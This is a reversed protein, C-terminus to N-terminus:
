YESFKTKDFLYQPVGLKGVHGNYIEKNAKPYIEIWPKIIIQETALEEKIFFLDDFVMILPVYGFKSTMKKYALPSAGYWARNDWMWNEDYNLVYSQDPKFRLNTEIQIVSPSYDKLIENLVHFDMGDIDICLFDLDKPVNFEKFMPVINDKTIFRKHLNILKNEFFGDLLLGDWEQNVRLLYTNSIAIGDIAGFEVFFKNKPQICKFIYDIYFDQNKQSQGGIDVPKLDYIKNLDNVLLSM